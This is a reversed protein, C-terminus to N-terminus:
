SSKALADTWMQSIDQDNPESDKARWVIYRISRKDWGTTLALKNMLLRHLENSSESSVRLTGCVVKFRLAQDSLGNSGVMLGLAILRSLRTSLGEGISTGPMVIAYVNNGVSAILDQSTAVTHLIRVAAEGVQVADRGSGQYVQVYVVAIDKGSKKAQNWLRRLEPKFADSVIFGTHPDLRALTNSEIHKAHQGKHHLHLVLLLMPVEFGLCYMPAYFTLWFMPVLGLHEAMAFSTVVCLPLYALIWIKATILGKFASRLVVSYVAMVGVVNAMLFLAVRVHVTTLANFPLAVDSDFEYVTLAAYAAACLLVFILVGLTWDSLKRWPHASLFMHRCFQLQAAVAIMTIWITLASWELTRGASPWILYAGLGTFNVMISLNCVAFLVYWATTVDRNAISLYLSLLVMLLTLSVLAGTILFVHQMDVQSQAACLLQLKLQTPVQHEIKIWL